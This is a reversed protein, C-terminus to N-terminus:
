TPEDWEIIVGITFGDVDEDSFDFITYENEQMETWKGFDVDNAANYEMGRWILVVDWFGDETDYFDPSGEWWHTYDAPEGTIWSLTGSRDVMGGTLYADRGGVAILDEMAAQESENGITVLHVTPSIGTIIGNLLHASVSFDYLAYFHGDHMTWAVTDELPVGYDYELWEDDLEDEIPEDVHIEDDGQREQVNGASNLIFTEPLEDCAMGNAIHATFIQPEYGTATITFTYEGEPLLDTQGSTFESMYYQKSIGNGEIQLVAVAPSGGFEYRIMPIRFRGETFIWQEYSVKENEVRINAPDDRVRINEHSEGYEQKVLFTSGNALQVQLHYTGPDLVIEYHGGEDVTQYPTTEGTETNIACIQADNVPTNQERNNMVYGFIMGGNKKEPFEGPKQKKGEMRSIADRVARSANIKRADFSDNDCRETSLFDTNADSCIIEKRQAGTLFPNVTWVLAALGAVHPSAMSTGAKYDYVLGQSTQPITSWIYEGPAYVDVRSGGNSFDSVAEARNHVGYAGVVIIRDYVDGYTENDPIGAFAYNFRSELCGHRAKLDVINNEDVGHIPTSEYYYTGNTGRQCACRVGNADYNYEPTSSLFHTSKVLKDNADVQLPIVFDSSSNGASNCIVFDYGKALLRNLFDGMQRGQSVSFNRFSQSDYLVSMNSYGISINIVKVNQTILEALNCKLEITSCKYSDTEPDFETDYLADEVNFLSSSYLNHRGYPYVGCIGDSNQADAAMTGAVHTGHDDNTVTNHHAQVICDQLDTHTTDVYTDVLGVRVNNKDKHVAEAQTWADNLSISNVNWNVAANGNSDLITADDFPLDKWVNGHNITDTGMDFILDLEASEVIPEAAVADAIDQLEAETYSGELRLQYDGTLEIEGVIGASYQTALAEVERRSTGDKVVILLENDAYQVGDTLNAMHEPDVPACEIVLDAGPDSRHKTVLILVIALIILLAIGGLTIGIVVPVANSGGGRHAGSAARRHKKMARERQKRARERQKQMKSRNRNPNM